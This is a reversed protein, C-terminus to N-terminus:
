RKFRNDRIMQQAMDTILTNAHDMQNAKLVDRIEVLLRYIDMMEGTGLLQRRMYESKSLGSAEVRKVLRAEEEESLRTKVIINRLLNMTFVRIQIM